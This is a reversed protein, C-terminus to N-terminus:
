LSSKMSAVWRLYKPLEGRVFDLNVEDTTVNKHHDNVVPSKYMTHTTHCHFGVRSRDVNGWSLQFLEDVASVNKSAM